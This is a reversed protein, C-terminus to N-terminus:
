IYLFFQPSLVCGQKVGIKTEFSGSLGNETKISYLLIQYMDQILILFPGKINYKCM